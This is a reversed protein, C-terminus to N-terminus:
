SKHSLLWKVVFGVIAVVLIATLTGAVNIGFIEFDLADNIITKIGTPIATIISGIDLTETINIDGGQSPPVSAVGDDFGEQYGLDYGSNAGEQYGANYGNGYGIQEGATYGQGYGVQEGATYGQQYGIQQGQALAASQTNELTTEYNLVKDAYTAWSQANAIFDANTLSGSSFSTNKIVQGAASYVVVNSMPIVQNTSQRGYYVFRTPTINYIVVYTGNTTITLNSSDTTLVARADDTVYLRTQSGTRGIAFFKGFQFYGLRQMADIKQFIADQDASSVNVGSSNAYIATDSYDSVPPSLAFASITFTTVVVVIAFIAMILKKTKM